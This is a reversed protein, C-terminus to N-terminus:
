KIEGSQERMDGPAPVRLRVTTGEGEVSTVELKGGLTAARERM